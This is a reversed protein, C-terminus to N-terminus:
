SVAKQPYMEHTGDLIKTKEHILRDREDEIFMIHDDWDRPDDSIATRAFGTLYNLANLIENCIRVQSDISQILRM